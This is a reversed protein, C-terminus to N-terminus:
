VGFRERDGLSVQQHLPGRLAKEGPDAACEAGM